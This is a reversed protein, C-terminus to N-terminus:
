YIFLDVKTYYHLAYQLTGSVVERFFNNANTLKAWFADATLETYPLMVMLEVKIGFIFFFIHKFHLFFYIILKDM